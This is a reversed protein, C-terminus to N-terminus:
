RYILINNPFHRKLPSLIKAEFVKPEDLHGLEYLKKSFIEGAHNEPECFANSGCLLDTCPSICSKTKLNCYLNSACDDNSSCEARGRIPDEYVCGTKYADGSM